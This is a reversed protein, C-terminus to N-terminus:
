KSFIEPGIQGFNTDFGRKKNKKKKPLWNPRQVFTFDPAGYDCDVHFIYYPRSTLWLIIIQLQRRDAIAITSPCDNLLQDLFCFAFVELTAVFPSSSPSNPKLLVKLLYPLCM